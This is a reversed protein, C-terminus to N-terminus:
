SLAPRLAPLRREFRQERVGGSWQDVESEGVLRFGHREYLARAADLGAFTTLWVNEVGREDCHAMATELLTKGLGTGRAQDAVIFWRLHAGQPGGGSDDIVISGVLQEGLYGALFLDRGREMRALFEALGAAVGTEFPLGFNWYRAYYAVHLGVIGALAGPRYGDFEIM